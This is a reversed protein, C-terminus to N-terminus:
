VAFQSWVADLAKSVACYRGYKQEYLEHKGMDPKVPANIRVMKEVADAYDSYVGAAICAAMASGLAGLEKVGNVTEIPYGLVDAFMQVWFPSNVAGGGMRIREPPEAVSLLKDIHTKHSFAVGEYVARVLHAATHYSTMGVFAAKALPHANSGYLFPLYYVETDEPAVSEALQTLYAYLSEGTRGGIPICNRIVWELNGASTASSEELLYCDPIAYISNMAIETGTIPQKALFGNISWTGTITFIQGPRTVGSAIACADVDFMGGAVPTGALLGTAAAAEPTIKGCCECSGKLPALFRCVEGIGLAEMVDKSFCGNRIDMLGSGSIDTLECYAEGTLRFRVYDKVSFVYNINDYLDRKNEKMWKLLAAQQCAILQQCIKPYVREFVGDSRWQEVIKWARNDTSGIGYYAPKGDKGWLYLGKGHGCVAVGVIASPSVQAGEIVERICDCNARWLEEMDRESYGPRPSFVPTTRSAVGVEHGQLDFLAAKTMTGGNDLGIAYQKMGILGTYEISKSEDCDESDPM